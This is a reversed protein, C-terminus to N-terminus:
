GRRVIFIPYFIHLGLTIIARTRYITRSIKLFKAFEICERDRSCNRRLSSLVIKSFFYEKKGEQEDEFTPFADKITNIMGTMKKALGRKTKAKLIDTNLDENSTKHKLKM